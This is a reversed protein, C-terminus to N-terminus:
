GGALLYRTFFLYMANSENVESFAHLIHKHEFAEQTRGIIETECCGNDFTIYCLGKNLPISSIDMNSTKQNTWDENGKRHKSCLNSCLFAFGCQTSSVGRMRSVGQEGEGM